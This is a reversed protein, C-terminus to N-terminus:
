AFLCIYDRVCLECKLTLHPLMVMTVHTEGKGCGFGFTVNFLCTYGPGNMRLSLSTANTWQLATGLITLSIVPTAFSM